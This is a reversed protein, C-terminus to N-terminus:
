HLAKRLRHALAHLVQVGAQPMEPLYCGISHKHVFDAASIVEEVRRKGSYQRGGEETEWVGEHLGEHEGANHVIDRAQLRRGGPAGGGGGGKEERM